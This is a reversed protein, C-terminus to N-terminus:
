HWYKSLTGEVPVYDKGRTASIDYSTYDVSVASDVPGNRTIVLTVTGCDERM